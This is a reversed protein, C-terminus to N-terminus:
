RAGGDPVLVLAGHTGHSRALKVGDVKGREVWHVLSSIASRESRYHHKTKAVAAKLTIGPESRVISALAECTGRFPTWRGGGGVAGAKGHTKHEPRLSRALAVPRTNWRRSALREVVRPPISAGHMTEGPTVELLGMGLEAIIPLVDRLARTAPAAIVVRHALRRREFAQAVLALSLSTKVEVIWLEFGVRAVIDAVGGSVQVEQYVDAGLAELWAVVIAAISQESAKM